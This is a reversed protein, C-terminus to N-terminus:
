QRVLRQIMLANERDIREAERKKGTYNISLEYPMKVPRMKNPSLNQVQTLSSLFSVNHNKQIEVLRNLLFQNDRVVKTKKELDLISAVKSKYEIFQDRRM